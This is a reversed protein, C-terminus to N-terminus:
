ETLKIVVLAIDPVESQKRDATATLLVDFLSKEKMDKPNDYNYSKLVDNSITSDSSTSLNRRMNRRLFYLYIVYCLM